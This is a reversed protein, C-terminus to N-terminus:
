IPESDVLMFKIEAEAAIENGVTAKCRCHGTRSRAHLAEAELVLQDGPRVPRRMKVRDMSLLVAVKGTHELKRGLLIGSLQAMAEVIMVGPMIPLTPYHGTFYPENITVNKLGVARSDGEITVIRDIMLFPYRHPLLRMIKRIDMVPEGAGTQRTEAIARSLKRVLEHNQAHGSRSAVVRGRLPRGLLTLDGLLDVVKHRVHEDPFRLENDMPGDDQMVLVDRTSLHKGLGQSQFLKAEEALLFTRAPALQEAFDDRELRFSLVQRGISPMEYELDYIVELEDSPGPLASLMMDGDSVVVPEEIRYVFKEVDQEELGAELLARAFPLCSGDTSPVEGASVEVRLNDIGLGTVAALVHEVTEVSASDRSLSTTRHPRQALFEIEAPIEVPTIMDTRVFVVGTDEPAPQFCLRCPVGSFLGPGEVVVSKAITRQMTM